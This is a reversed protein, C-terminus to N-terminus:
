IDATCKNSWAAMAMTRLLKKVRVNGSNLFETEM